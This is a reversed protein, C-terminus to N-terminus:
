NPQLRDPPPKASARNLINVPWNTVNGRPIPPSCIANVISIRRKPTPNVASRSMSASGWNFWGGGGVGMSLAGAALAALGAMAIAAHDSTAGLVGMVVSAVSVIGDNAGLVAARLKNLKNNNSQDSPLEGTGPATTM